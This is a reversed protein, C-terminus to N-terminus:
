QGAEDDNAKPAREGGAIQVAMMADAIKLPELSYTGANLATRLRAVADADVPPHDSLFIGSLEVKVGHHQGGAAPRADRSSSHLPTRDTEGLPRVPHPSQLRTVDFPM